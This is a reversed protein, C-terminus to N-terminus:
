APRMTALWDGIAALADQDRPIAAGPGMGSATDRHPDDPDHPDLQLTHGAGAAHYVDVDATGALAAELAKVDEDRIGLDRQGHVILVPGAVGGAEAAADLAFISQLYRPQDAPLAPALESSVEPASGTALLTAVARELETALEERRQATGMLGGRRIEAALVEGLPRGPTNVLVLAAPPREVPGGSALRLGVWGGQDHGVVATRAPDVEPLSRLYALAAAADEVHHALELPPDSPVPVSRGTGRKDYRLVVMGRAALAEGLERYLANVRGPSRAVGDRTTQGFGPVIVVGPRPGTTGPAPLDLSGSLRLGAFGQFTVARAAVEANGLRSEGPPPAEGRTVALVAAGLVALLAVAAVM